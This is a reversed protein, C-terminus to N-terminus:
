DLVEGTKMPYGLLYQETTMKSKSEPHVEFVKLGGAGCSVVFFSKEVEIVHGPKLNKDPRVEASVIKLVSGNRLAWVGPWNSFARMKNVIRNASQTWDIRGEEKEIKSAITVQAEDQAAPSLNGRIYDMYDIKLLDCALSKMSEYLASANMQPTIRIKRVGIVPGADLKLVIKQLSVGTEEDGAELARQIPAAGRWRPLISAHVNVAGLPFLDLFPQKLIQGFAIVVASEVGLSKIKDLVFNENINEPSEVELGLSLAAEKVPSAQTKLNRGRPRDPQTFVKVVEFHEDSALARLPEVAFDPTGLFIIRVKSM